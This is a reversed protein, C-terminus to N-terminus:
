RDGYAVFHISCDTVAMGCRRRWSTTFLEPLFRGLAGSDAALDLFTTATAFKAHRVATAYFDGSWGLDGPTMPAPM